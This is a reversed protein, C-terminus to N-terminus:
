VLDHVATVGPRAIDVELRGRRGVSFWRDCGGNQQEIVVVMRGDRGASAWATARLLPGPHGYPM